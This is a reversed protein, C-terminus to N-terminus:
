PVVEFPIRARQLAEMEEGGRGFILPDGGKLRVVRKGKQALAILLRNIGAQPLRLQAGHPAGPGRKGVYVIEADANRQLLLPSVLDDVVIADAEDILDRGRVTILSPDGPGAGVLFVKGPRRM